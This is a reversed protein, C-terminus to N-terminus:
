RSITSASIRNTLSIWKKWSDYPYAGLHPDLGKLDAQLRQSEEEGVDEIDETQVNYRKALFSSRSFEHFFGTRPGTSGERSM